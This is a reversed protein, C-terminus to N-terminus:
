NLTEQTLNMHLWDAKGGSSEFKDDLARELTFEQVLHVQHNRPRLQLGQNRMMCRSTIGPTRRKNILHHQANMQELLKKSRGVRGHFLGQLVDQQLTLKDIEIRTDGQQGILAGAQAQRVHEFLVVQVRLYQRCDTVLRNIALGNDTRVM